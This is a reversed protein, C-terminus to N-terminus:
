SSFGDWPQLAEPECLVFSACRAEGIVEATSPTPGDHGVAARVEMLCLALARAGSCALM